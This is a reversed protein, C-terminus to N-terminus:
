AKRLNFVNLDLETPTCYLIGRYKLRDCSNAFRVNDLVVDNVILEERENITEDDYIDCTDKTNIYFNFNPNIKRLGDLLLPFGMHEGDYCLHGLDSCDFDHICIVCKDFGALAELEKLIVWRDKVISTYFHADLYIFIIGKCNAGRYLEVQRKLFDSSPMHWLGINKRDSVYSKAIGLYEESIDCSHVERWHFSHLRVNVGKFTGTEWLHQMGYLEKLKFIQEISQKDNWSM